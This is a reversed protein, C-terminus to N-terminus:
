YLAQAHLLAEYLVINAHLCGHMQCELCCVNEGLEPFAWFMKTTKWGLVSETAAHINIIPSWHRPVISKETVTSKQMSDMERMHLIVMQAAGQLVGSCGATIWPWPRSMCQVGSQLHTVNVNVDAAESIKYVILSAVALNM